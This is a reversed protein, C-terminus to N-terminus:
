VHFARRIDREFDTLRGLHWCLAADIDPATYAGEVEVIAEGLACLLENACAAVRIVLKQPGFESTVGQAFSRLAQAEHVNTDARAQRILADLSRGDQDLYEHFRRLVRQRSPSGFDSHKVQTM